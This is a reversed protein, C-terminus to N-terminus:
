GQNGKQSAGFRVERPSSSVGKPEMGRAWFKTKPRGGAAGTASVQAVIQRSDGLTALIEDRERRRLWQTKRALSWSDIGRSGACAIISAVRKTAAEVQNDSIRGACETEYRVFCWRALTEGWRLDAEDIRPWAM